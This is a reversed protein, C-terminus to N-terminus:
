SCTSETWASTSLPKLVKTYETDELRVVCDLAFPLQQSHELVHQHCASEYGVWHATINASCENECYFKNVYEQIRAHRVFISETSLDQGRERLMDYLGVCLVGDKNIYIVAFLISDQPVIRNLAAWQMNVAWIRDVHANSRAYLGGKQDVIITLIDSERPLLLGAASSSLRACRSRGTLSPQTPTQSLMQDLRVFIPPGLVHHLHNLHHMTAIQDRKHTKNTLFFVRYRTWTAMSSDTCTPMAQPIGISSVSTVYKATM